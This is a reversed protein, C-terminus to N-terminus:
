VYVNKNVLFVNQPVLYRDWQRAIGRANLGRQILMKCDDKIGGVFQWWKPLMVDDSVHGNCECYLPKEIPQWNSGVTYRARSNLYPAEFIKLDHVQGQPPTVQSAIYPKTYTTRQFWGEIECVKQYILHWLNLLAYVWQFHVSRMKNWLCFLSKSTM